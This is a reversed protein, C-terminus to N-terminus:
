KEYRMMGDALGWHFMRRQIASISFLRKSKREILKQLRSYTYRAPKAARARRIVFAEAVPKYKDLASRRKRRRAHIALSVAFGDSYQVGSTETSSQGSSKGYFLRDLEDVLDHIPQRKM